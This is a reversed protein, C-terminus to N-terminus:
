DATLDVPTVSPSAEPTAIPSSEPLPTAAAPTSLPAPTSYPDTSVPLDSNQSWSFFGQSLITVQDYGALQLAIWVNGSDISFLSYVVIEDRPELGYSAFLDQLEEKSRFTGDARMVEATPINISGPIHGERITGNVTDLQQESSRTDVLRVNPDDFRDVLTDREILYGTEWTPTISISSDRSPPVKTSLEGGAGIWASLGGDLVTGNSYGNIKLVWLFWSARTSDNNDYLVIRADQPVNLNLHGFYDASSPPRSIQFPIGYIEPHLSMADQWIVHHAGPIHGQEYLRIDSLDFIYDVQNEHKQLWRVDVLLDPSNGSIAPTADIGSPLDPTQSRDIRVAVAGLLLVAVTAVAIMGLYNKVVSRMCAGM